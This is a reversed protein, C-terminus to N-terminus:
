GSCYKLGLPDFLKVYFCLVLYVLGSLFSVSFYVQICQCLLLQEPYFVSLVSVLNLLYMPGCSVLFSRYHWPCMLLVFCCDVFHIFIKVLECEISSYYGFYIFFDLVLCSCIIIICPCLSAPISLSPLLFFGAFYVEEIILHLSQVVFELQELGVYVSFILSSHSFLSDFLFARDM